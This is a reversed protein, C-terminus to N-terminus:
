AQGISRLYALSLHASELPPLICRDQEVILWETGVAAAAACIATFDMVGSGIETFTPWLAGKKMDKLHLLPVRGALSRILAVPDYGAYRAWYVDVEAQVLRPDTNDMLIQWGTDGGFRRFEFAHNHYCLQLGKAACTAGIENLIRAAARWGAAHYRGRWIPLKGCVVYGCDLTLADDIVRDLHREFQQLRVHMGAVQLGLEDLVAKLAPAGLDGTGSLQVAAYGMAAVARLTGLFDTRAAKRVTYLQLAVPRRPM